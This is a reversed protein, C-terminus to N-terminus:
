DCCGKEDSGATAQNHIAEWKPRSGPLLNGDDDVMAALQEQHAAYLGQAHGAPRGLASLARMAKREVVKPDIPEPKATEPEAAPEAAKAEENM